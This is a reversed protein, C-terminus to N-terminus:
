KSPAVKKESGESKGGFASSMYYRILEEVRSFDEEALGLMKRLRKNEAIMGSVQIALNQNDLASYYARFKLPSWKGELEYLEKELARIHEEVAKIDEDGPGEGDIYGDLLIIRLAEDIRFGNERCTKEIREWVEDPVRFTVKRWRGKGRVTIRM